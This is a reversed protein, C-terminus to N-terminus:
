LMCSYCYLSYSSMSMTADTPPWWLLRPSMPSAVMYHNNTLPLLPAPGWMCNLTLSIVWLHLKLNITSAHLFNLFNSKSATKIYCNAPQRYITTGYVHVKSIVDALVWILGLGHSIWAAEIGYTLDQKGLRIIISLCKQFRCSRCENVFSLVKAIHVDDIKLISLRQHVLDTPTRRDWKLLLKLLKNQMIQLKSLSEKACSGYAEIGYQIRSYIFAYYLQKSIRLSVFNKIHNFIGFYKM